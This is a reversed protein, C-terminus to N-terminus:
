ENNMVGTLAKVIMQKRTMTKSYCDGIVKENADLVTVCPVTKDFVIHMHWGNTTKCRLALNLISDIPTKM